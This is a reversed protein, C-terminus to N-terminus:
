TKKYTPKKRYIRKSKKKSSKNEKEKDEILQKILIMLAVANVGIELAKEMVNICEQLYAIGCGKINKTSPKIKKKTLKKKKVIQVGKIFLQGM